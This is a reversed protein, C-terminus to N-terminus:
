KAEVRDLKLKIQNVKNETESLKAKIAEALQVGQDFKVTAQEIDVDGSNFWDVIANLEGMLETLSLKTLDTKTESM